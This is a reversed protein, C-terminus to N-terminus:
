TSASDTSKGLNRENSADYLGSLMLYRRLAEAPTQLIEACRDIQQQSTQLASQIETVPIDQARRIQPHQELLKYMSPRSVGLEQAAALIEWRQNRMATLVADHSIEHLKKRSQAASHSNRALSHASSNTGMLSSDLNGPSLRPNASVATLSPLVAPASAQELLGSLDPSQGAQLQLCVRRIVQALQRVNGPWDYCFLSNLIEGPFESTLTAEGPERALIHLILVGLDERRQKLPPLHLVLSELRRLLAHNFSSQYLNQDTASVIRASSRCDQSAGLPRYDGTELVRLLMPQISTPTNGVEDLFLTAGAAEAFYGKRTQAAGTYAGKAAGFLDAAALTENLAAMNVTVLPAHARSSFQHIAKAALEKGTGTEGLLLVPLDSKAMQRIQERLQIAASGVGVIEPILNFQPLSRMWHLCLFVSRGLSIVVGQDIQSSSLNIQDTIEHGNVEVVMRSPPVELMVSQADQWRLLIPTRSITGVAMPMGTQGPHCFLPTFRNLELVDQSRSHLYQGGIMAPDPHWLVTIGLFVQQAMASRRLPSTLTYDFQNM